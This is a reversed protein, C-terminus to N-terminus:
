RSRFQETSPSSLNLTPPRLRTRCTLRTFCPSLCPATSRRAAVM